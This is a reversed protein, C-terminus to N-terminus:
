FGFMKKVQRNYGVVKARVELVFEVERKTIKKNKAPFAIRLLKENERTSLPINDVCRSAM